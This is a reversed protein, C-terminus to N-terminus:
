QSEGDPRQKHCRQKHCRRDTGVHPGVEDKKAGDAEAKHEDLDGLHLSEGDKKVM